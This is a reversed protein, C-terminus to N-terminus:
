LYDKIKNEIKLSDKDLILYMRNKSKKIISNEYLLTNNLDSNKNSNLYGLLLDYYKDVDKDEMIIILTTPNFVSNNNKEYNGIFLSTKLERVDIGFYMSIEEKELENLEPYYDHLVKQVDSITMRKDQINLMFILFLIVILASVIILFGKRM